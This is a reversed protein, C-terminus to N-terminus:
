DLESYLTSYYRDFTGWRNEPTSKLLQKRLRKELEWHRLIMEESIDINDSIQYNSKYHNILEQGSPGQTAM